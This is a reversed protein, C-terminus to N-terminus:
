DILSTKTNVIIPIVPVPITTTGATVLSNFTKIDWTVSLISVNNPVTQTAKLPTGATYATLVLTATTLYSTRTFRSTSDLIYLATATFITLTGTPNTTFDISPQFVILTNINTVQIQTTLTGQVSYSSQFFSTTTSRILSVIEVTTYSTETLVTSVIIRDIIKTEQQFLIKTLTTELTITARQRSTVTAVTISLATTTLTSTIIKTSTEINSITQEITKTVRVSTTTYIIKTVKEVFPDDTVTSPTQCTSSTSSDSTKQTLSGTSTSGAHIHGLLSFTLWVLVQVNLLVM